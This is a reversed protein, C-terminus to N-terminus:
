PQAGQNKKVWEQYEELTDFKITDVNEETNLFWYMQYHTMNAIQDWTWHYKEALTRYV